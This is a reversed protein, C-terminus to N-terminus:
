PVEVLLTIPNSRVLDGSPETYSIRLEYRGADLGSVDIEYSGPDTVQDGLTATASLALTRAYMLRVEATLVYGTLDVPVANAIWRGALKVTEGETVKLTDTM